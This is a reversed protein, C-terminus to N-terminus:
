TKPCAFFEMTIFDFPCTTGSSPDELRAPFHFARSSTIDQWTQLSMEYRGETTNVHVEKRKKKTEKEEDMM